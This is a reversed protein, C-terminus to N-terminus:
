IISQSLDIMTNWESLTNSIDLSSMEKNSIASDITKELNESNENLSAITTNLLESYDTKSNMNKTSISFSNYDLIFFKETNLNDTISLEMIKDLQQKNKSDDKNYYNYVNKFITLIRNIM